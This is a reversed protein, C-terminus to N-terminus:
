GPQEGEDQMHAADRAAKTDHDCYTQNSEVLRIVEDLDDTIKYLNEDGPSITGHSSMTETVFKDFHRWFDSGVLIVPAKITKGTQILTLIETLEDLTGFGGPFYIYANAFLTMVIKRPAFHQFEYAETAYPNLQQEHPLKINFAISEGGAKKAGEQVAIHAGENAASMIGFGGGSVIAYGLHALKEALMAAQQYYKDDKPTRASGFITVTKHYKRLINYGENIEHDVEGLRIMAAQMLIDRPACSNPLNPKPKPQM